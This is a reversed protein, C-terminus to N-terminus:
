KHGTAVVCADADVATANTNAIGKVLAYSIGSSFVLGKSPIPVPLVTGAQVGYVQVLLASDAAPSPASAKNYFKIFIKYAADNYVVCSYLRGASAKLVPADTGTAVRHTPTCGSEVPRVPLGLYTDSPDAQTPELVNADITPSAIISAERHFGSPPTWSDVTGASDPLVIGTQAM